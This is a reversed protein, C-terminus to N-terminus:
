AGRPSGAESQLTDADDADIVRRATDYDFGAHALAALDKDRREAREREARFPGLRRRRALATAAALDVNPHEADLASLAIDIQERGVGKVTLRSAIRQRAVGRRSLSAAQSAAYQGDDLIGSRGFRGVIEDIWALAEQHRADHREIGARLLKRLLVRRLNKASSAFRGLYDLAARELIESSVSPVKGKRSKMTSDCEQKSGVRRGLASAPPAM